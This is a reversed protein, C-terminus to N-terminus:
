WCAPRRIGRIGAQAMADLDAEPTKDDIV